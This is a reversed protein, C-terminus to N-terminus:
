QNEMKDNILKELIEKDIENAIDKSLTEIIEKEIDISTFVKIDKAAELSWHAKLKRLPQWDLKEENDFIYKSYHEFNLLDRKAKLVDLVIQLEKYKEDLSKSIKWRIM